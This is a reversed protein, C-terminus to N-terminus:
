SLQGVTIGQSIVTSGARGVRGYVLPVPGGQQTQNAGGTFFFNPNSESDAMSPIRPKPALLGQVGASVLSMGLGMGLMQWGTPNAGWSIYILVIGIIIKVVNSKGKVAPFYHVETVSGLHQHAQEATISNSKDKEPKGLTVIWEGDAIHQKFEDGLQLVVGQTLLYPTAANYQHKKGFKKALSGHFVVNIM